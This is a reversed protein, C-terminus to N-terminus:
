RYLTQAAYLTLLMAEARGHDKERSLMHAMQPFLQLATQRSAGKVSGLKFHKKWVVPVVYHTEWGNGTVAMQCAGFNQGFRFMSTVGQGPMANVQEILALHRGTETIRLMTALQHLNTEPRGNKSTITPMDYVDIHRTTPNFLAISGSLGPDIALIM